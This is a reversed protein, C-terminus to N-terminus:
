LETAGNATADIVHSIVKTDAEEQNSQLYSMHKNTGKCQSGWAPVVQWGNREGYEITKTALYDALEM